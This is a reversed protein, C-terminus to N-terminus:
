NITKSAGAFAYNAVHQYSTFNTRRVSSMQHTVSYSANVPSCALNTLAQRM